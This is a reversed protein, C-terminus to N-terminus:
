RSRAPRGERDPLFQHPDGVAGCQRFAAPHPRRRPKRGEAASGRHARRNRRQERADHADARPDFRAHFLEVVDAAIGSHKVLTAWMYDQSYPVRIQRLYRSLTRILAVDRWALGGQLTLANYGDNEAVGRMVMLFRSRTAGKGSDLDIMGGDAREAAHRSVLRRGDGQPAIHYTREDVVRFGMNELVPVRESLPLPRAFAGSRSASRANSKRSATTSISASRGSSPLTGRDRSHRRGCGGACLGRSLRGLVRRPLSQVDRASQGASQATRARPWARRDLHARDGVVETRADRSRRGTNRRQRLPRHHFARAGAPRRPFFPYFASVRGIFARALYAGIKARIDSDYRERPVFVMVSVFRDFRDRRALVRVRPREDLQLIALAFKYLTDDDIQFLEDRPYHELM